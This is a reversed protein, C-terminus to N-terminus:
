IKVCDPHFAQFERSGNGVLIAAHVSRQKVTRLALGSCILEDEVRACVVFLGFRDPRCAHKKVQNRNTEGDHIVPMVM